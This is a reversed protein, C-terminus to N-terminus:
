PGPVTIPLQLPGLPQLFVTGEATGQSADIRLQARRADLPVPFLLTGPEFIDPVLETAIGTESPVPDGGRPTLTIAAAPLQWPTGTQFPLSSATTPAALLLWARGRPAWGFRPVWPLRYSRAGDLAVEVDYPVPGLQALVPDSSTAVGATRASEAAGLTQVPTQAIQQSVPDDAVDATTLDFSARRGQDLITLLTQTEPLVALVRLQAAEDPGLDVRRQDDPAGVTVLAAAPGRGTDPYPGAATAVEIEALLYGEPARIEDEEGPLGEFGEAVLGGRDVSDNLDVSRLQLARHPMTLVPGDARDLSTVGYAEQPAVSLYGQDLIDGEPEVSTPADDGGSCASALLTLSLVATSVATRVLRKPM